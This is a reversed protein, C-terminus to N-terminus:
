RLDIATGNNDRITGAENTYGVDYSSYIIESCGGDASSLHVEVGTASGNSNTRLSTFPFITFNGLKNNCSTAKAVESGSMGAKYAFGTPVLFIALISCAIVVPIAKAIYSTKLKDLEQGVSSFDKQKGLLLHFKGFFRGAAM